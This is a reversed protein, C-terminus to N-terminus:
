LWPCLFFQENKLVEIDLGTDKFTCNSIKMCSHKANLEDAGSREATCEDMLEKLIDKMFSRFFGQWRKIHDNTYVM